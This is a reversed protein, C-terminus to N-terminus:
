QGEGPSCFIGSLLSCTDLLLLGDGDEPRGYRADLSDFATRDRRKRNSDSVKSVAKIM